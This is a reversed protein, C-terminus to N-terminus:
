TKPHLGATLRLFDKAFLLHCAENVLEKHNIKTLQEIIREISLSAELPIRTPSNNWIIDNRSATFSLLFEHRNDKSATKFEAIDVTFFTRLIM